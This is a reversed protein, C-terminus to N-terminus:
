RKRDLSSGALGLSHCGGHNRSDDAVIDKLRVDVPVGEATYLCRKSYRLTGYPASSFGVFEKGPSLAGRGEGERGEGGRGEM